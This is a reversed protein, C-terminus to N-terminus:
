EQGLIQSATLVQVNNVKEYIAKFKSYDILIVPSKYYVKGKYIEVVTGNYLKENFYVSSEYFSNVDKVNLVFAKVTDHSNLFPVSRPDLEAQLFKEAQEEEDEVVIKLELLM